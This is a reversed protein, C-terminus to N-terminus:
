HHANEVASALREFVVRPDGVGDVSIFLGAKKYYDKLPATNKEYVALRTSIVEEKDDERQILKGGCASCVNEKSPPNMKVHFTSGCQTCVRRGTLRDKLLDHSVNLFIARSVRSNMENMLDDLAEAQAPNRPFGDFLFGRGRNKEMVEKLMGIVVSDPVLAGKDMNKQAELGLATKNKIAERLIDGTSIHKLSYKESLIQSQTGKGAGPPGFLVLNM